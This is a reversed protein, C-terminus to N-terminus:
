LAKNPIFSICIMIAAKIENLRMNLCMDISSLLLM